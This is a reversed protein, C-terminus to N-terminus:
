MDDGISYDICNIICEKGRMNGNHMNKSNEISIELIDEKIYICM